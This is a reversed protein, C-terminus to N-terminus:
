NNNLFKTDVIYEISNFTVSDMSDTDARKNVKGTIRGKGHRFEQLWHEFQFVYNLTQVTKMNDVSSTMTFLFKQDVAILSVNLYNLGEVPQFNIEKDVWLQTPFNSEVSCYFRFKPFYHWFLIGFEVGGDYCDNENYFITWERSKSQETYNAKKFDWVIQAKFGSLSQVYPTQIIEGSLEYSPNGPKGCGPKTCWTLRTPTNVTLPLSSIFSAHSNNKNRDPCQYVTINDSFAGNLNSANTFTNLLCYIILIILNM